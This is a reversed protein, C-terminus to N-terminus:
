SHRTYVPKRLQKEAEEAFKKGLFTKGCGPPGDFLIGNPIGINYIKAVDPFQLTNIIANMNKKLNVMGVIGEFGKLSNEPQIKPQEEIGTKSKLSFNTRLGVFYHIALNSDHRILGLVPAWLIASACFVTKIASRIVDLPGRLALCLDKNLEFALSSTPAFFFYLFSPIKVACGITRVWTTNLARFGSSLEFLPLALAM